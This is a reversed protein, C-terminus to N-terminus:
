KPWREVTTKMFKYIPEFHPIFLGSLSISYALPEFYVTACGSNPGVCIMTPIRGGPPGLASSQGPHTIISNLRFQEFPGLPHYRLAIPITM